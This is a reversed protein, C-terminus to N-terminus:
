ATFKAGLAPLGGPTVGVLPVFAETVANMSVYEFVM